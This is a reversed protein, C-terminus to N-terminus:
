RSLAGASKEVQGLRTKLWKLALFAACAVVLRRFGKREVDRVMLARENLAARVAETSWQTPM